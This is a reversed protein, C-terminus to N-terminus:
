ALELAIRPQKAQARGGNWLFLFHIPIAVGTTHKAFPTDTYFAVTFGPAGFLRLERDADIPLGWDEPRIPPQWPDFGLLAAQQWRITKETTAAAATPLRTRRPTM